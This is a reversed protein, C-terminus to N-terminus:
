HWTGTPLDHGKGHMPLGTRKGARRVILHGGKGPEFVCGNKELWRKFEGSTMVSTSVHTANSDVLTYRTSARFGTDQHRVRKLEAQGRVITVIIGLTRFATKGAAPRTVRNRGAVFAWGLSISVSTSLGRM